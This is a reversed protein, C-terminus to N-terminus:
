IERGALVYTIPEIVRNRAACLFTRIYSVYMAWAIVHGYTCPLHSIVHAKETSYREFYALIGWTTNRKPM